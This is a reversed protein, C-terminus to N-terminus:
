SSPSALSPSTAGDPRRPTKRLADLLESMSPHRSEPLRHLGKELIRHVWLPVTSGKPPPPVQGLSTAHALEPISKGLFPRRGYLAEYLAVCFSFQDTAPSTAAGAYQEPAMYGPSGMMAGEQTMPTNLSSSFSDPSPTQPAREEGSRTSRAIGFDTVRPRGDDEGILVNAPKFDRHVLGAAHAAVLGRGAQVFIEVIERWTRPKVKVWRVLTMGRVLEMAVFVSKGFAGVDFVPMVNPHSLQAMAQAERMLRMQGFSDGTEGTKSRTTRLIKVAVPRDLQPDHATYVLGMGGEGLLAQIVYRGVRAGETLDERNADKSAESALTKDELDASNSM